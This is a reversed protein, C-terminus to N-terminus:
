LVELASTIHNRIQINLRSSEFFRKKKTCDFQFIWFKLASSVM